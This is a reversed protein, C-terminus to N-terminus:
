GVMREEQILNLTLCIINFLNMFDIILLSCNLKKTSRIFLFGKIKLDNNVRPILTVISFYYENYSKDPSPKAVITSMPSFITPPGFFFDFM